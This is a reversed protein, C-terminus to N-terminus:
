TGCIIFHRKPSRDLKKLSSKGGDCYTRVWSCVSNESLEFLRAAERQTMRRVVVARVVKHRLEKQAYRPLTRTDQNWPPFM